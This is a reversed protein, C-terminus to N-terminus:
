VRVLSDRVRGAALSLEPELHIEAALEAAQRAIDKADEPHSFAWALRDEFDSLDAGVPIFHTWPKLRDYFWQRYGQASQVKFVAAGMILKDLFSWSNSWGDIDIQYRYRVFAEKPVAPKLFGAREVAEKLRPAAIQHLSSLAVDLRDAFRSRRALACLKLRPLWEWDAGNGPDLVADEGPPNTLRGGASGRWFLVDDRQDWPAAERGLLDRLWRYDDNGDLYPDPVLVADDRASSYSIRSYDGDDNGDGLDIVCQFRGDGLRAAVASFLKGILPFRRFDCLPQAVIAADAFFLASQRSIHVVVHECTAVDRPLHSAPLIKFSLPVTSGQMLASTFAMEM